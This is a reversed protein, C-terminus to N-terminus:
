GANQGPSGGEVVDRYLKEYDRASRAWSYDAAMANKMVRAWEDGQRFVALARDIAALLAGGEYPEFVFGNGTGRSPDFEEVTDKLGGTARVIPITAYRLSYIQNLGCPEYRSPMLFMDCGAEVQHALVDDFGIRVGAQSPWRKSAAELFDRYRRDGDGLVALQVGKEFVKDLVSELLDLGKQPTLRSVMGVLPVGADVTLGLIRQLHAKCVRKGSLNRPYYNRVIFRDTAPSWTAYDAGNLIGALRDRRARLLGDLGFGQEATQIERSYTPSVTTIADAFVLGGKLFNIRGYFELYRTTFLADDLRLLHWDHQPFLGQYGLNHVTLVARVQSLDPYLEPQAKLFAVALAAQWDHAHLIDPSGTQKMVELVGRAFFVFREANDHYDGEPGSYLHPRDFYRDCRLFYVPVGGLNATFVAGEEIRGAIPVKVRMGSDRVRAGAELVARYAPMILGVQHGLQHLATGLSAAVDALGGTKAFPAIEPCAMVIRLSAPASASVKKAPERAAVPPAGASEAAPEGGFGAAVPMGAFINDQDELQGLWAEDIAGSELERALRDLRSLHNKTRLTAYPEMPGAHIMFAWDSAQALLLERGAQDLARRTAGAAKPRAATLREMRGAGAHLYRYIWDSEGNLWMEHFGNRGWSSACPTALQNVPYEDLYESLTVLRITEQERAIGRVLCDLWRPGEFWWHGFLEADYPAVIVPRRDMSQGLSRAQKMREALFHRAHVAAKEEAREPVYPEKHNDTGTIRYYKFGTDLRIGDPHIYPAVYDLELDHGIDRYFERYDFDGPYGVKSSWVQQSSDPDRGFAAVGSRCVVPAYVGYKPRCDARTVGHTELITYRIGQGRLVSDVGPYYGCEPLWFGRPRRGFMRGYHEVGIGVQARVASENVSLLPLYGHTAASAIVEVKGTEQFRRLCSVLNREYRNVYADRVQRFLGRYMVAVPHFDPLARTREVEKEALAMTKDLKRLYRSQLLPDLLMSALPPTISFTLRFDIGDAIWGDVLSFLPVYTETIAEFLWNEELCDEYEPHRVYPLHAHLVLALYGEM